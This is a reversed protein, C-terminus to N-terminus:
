SFFAYNALGASGTSQVGGIDLHGTSTGGPFTGPYGVGKCAAGGGPTANLSYDGSSSNTFPNATLLVDHAGGTLGSYNGATNSGLANYDETLGKNQPTTAGTTIIGHGTNGYVINNRILTGVIATMSIGSGGNGAITCDIIQLYNQAFSILVGTASCDVIICRNIIVGETSEIGNGCGSIFCDQITSTLASESFIGNTTCSTFQCNVIQQASASGSGSIYGNLFGTFSCNEIWILGLSSFAVIGNARTSATNSFNINRVVNTEFFTSGSTLHLIDTSNTSTTLTPATGNDGHTTQYGIIWTSFSAPVVATSTMTYTGTQIWITNGSASAPCAANLTAMAGGLNGHGATSGATGVARDMTAVGSVVTTVLYFGVTFGTGSLVHIINGVYASTFPNAASTLQTNTAGIVLDTFAVQPSNQQSYDTGASTVDFGGGNNDNGTTRVDWQVTGFSM